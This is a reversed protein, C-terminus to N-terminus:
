KVSNIAWGLDSSVIKEDQYYTIQLESIGKKADFPFRQVAWPTGFLPNTWRFAQLFTDVKRGPLPSQHMFFVKKVWAAHMEGSGALTAGMGASNVLFSPVLLKSLNFLGAIQADTATGGKDGFLRDRIQDNQRLDVMIEEPIVVANPKMGTKLRFLEAQAVMDDIPRSGTKNSWATAVNTTTYVSTNVKDAVRIEYDVLLRDTVLVGHENAWQLEADANAEDEMTWDAGLGYNKAYYTDSSVAFRVKRVETGPARASIGAEYLRNYLHDTKYYIDSQKSVGLVPVLADAIYGEPRRGVLINSMVRDIHLDRGNQYDAM